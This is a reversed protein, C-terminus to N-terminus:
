ATGHSDHIAERRRRQIAAYAANFRREIEAASIDHRPQPKPPATTKRHPRNWERCDANCYVKSRGFRNAPFEKGCRLCAPM